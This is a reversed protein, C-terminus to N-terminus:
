HYIYDIQVIQGFFLLLLFFIFHVLFIFPAPFFAATVTVASPMTSVANGGIGAFAASSNAPCNVLTSDTFFPSASLMTITVKLPPTFAFSVNRSSPIKLYLTSGLPSNESYAFGLCLEWLPRM